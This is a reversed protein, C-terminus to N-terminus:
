GPHKESLFSQVESAAVDDAM